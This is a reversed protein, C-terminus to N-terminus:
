VELSNRWEKYNFEQTKVQEFTFVLKNDDEYGMIELTPEEINITYIWPTFVGDGNSNVAIIWQANLEDVYTEHTSFIKLDMDRLKAYQEESPEDIELIKSHLVKLTDISVSKLFKVITAGVGEPGGDGKIHVAKMEGGVILNVFAGTM